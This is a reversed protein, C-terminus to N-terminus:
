LGKAVNEKFHARSRDLHEDPNFNHTGSYCKFAPVTHLTDSNLNWMRLENGFVCGGDLAFVNDMVKYCDPHVEHGFFIRNGKHLEGVSKYWYQGKENDFYDKGGFYRSYLCDQKFQRVMPHTPNIGAHVIYDNAVKLIYPQKTLYDKVEDRVGIPWTAFSDITTQLGHTIKVKNGKLYRLFRDDHNGLVMYFNKLTHMCFMMVDASHPGRDVLDGASILLDREYDFNVKNLLTVLERLCGHLDGIIFTRDADVAKSTIDLVPVYDM